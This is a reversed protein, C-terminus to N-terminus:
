LNGFTYASNGSKASNSNWGAKGKVRRENRSDVMAVARGGDVLVYSGTQIKLVGNKRTAGRPITIDKKINVTMKEGDKTVVDLNNGHMREVKALVLKDPNTNCFANVANKSKNEARRTAATQAKRKSASMRTANVTKKASQQGHPM